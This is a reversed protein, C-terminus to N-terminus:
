VFDIILQMLYSVRDIESYLELENIYIIHDVRM